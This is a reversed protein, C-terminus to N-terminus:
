PTKEIITDTRKWVAYGGGGGDRLMELPPRYVETFGDVEKRATVVLEATGSLGAAYPGVQRQSLYSLTWPKESRVSIEPATETRMWGAVAALANATSVSRAMAPKVDLQYGTQNALMLLATAIFLPVHPAEGAYLIRVLQRLGLFGYVVVIPYAFLHLEVSGAFGLVLLWLMWFVTVGHATLFGRITGVIGESVIGAIALALLLIRAIMGPLSMGVTEGISLPLLRAGVLIGIVVWPLLISSYVLIPGVWLRLGRRGPPALLLRHLLLSVFLPFAQWCVLTCLGSFVVPLIRENRLHFFIAGLSLALGIPAAGGSPAIQLLGPDVAVVLTVCLAMIRSSLLEVAILFTLLLVLCSFFLSFIRATLLLDLGLAGGGSIFLVWVPSPTGGFGAWGPGAMGEGLLFDGAYRLHVFTSEPAYELSRSATLYFALVTLPLGYRVIQLVLRNADQAM